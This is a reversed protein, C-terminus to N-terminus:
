QNEKVCKSSFKTRSLNCPACLVRLVAHRRHYDSFARSIANDAELFTHRHTGDDCDAFQIPVQLTTTNLFDTVLKQFHVVHDVHFKKTYTKCLECTANEKVLTRFEMTQEDIVTRFAAYLTTINSPRKGSICLRWSIDTETGDLRVINLEYARGNLTNRKISFDSINRL